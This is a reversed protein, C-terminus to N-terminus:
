LCKAGWHIRILNLSFLTWNVSSPSFKIMLLNNIQFYLNLSWFTILLNFFVQLVFFFLILDFIIHLFLLIHHFSLLKSRISLVNELNYWIRDLDNKTWTDLLFFQLFVFYNSGALNIKTENRLTTILTKSLFLQNRRHWDFTLHIVKLFWSFSRLHYVLLNLVISHIDLLYSRLFIYYLWWYFLMCRRLFLPTRFFLNLLINWFLWM